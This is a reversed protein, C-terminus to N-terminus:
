TPRSLSLMVSTNIMWLYFYSGLLRHSPSRRQRAVVGAETYPSTFTIAAYAQQCCSRLATACVRWCAAPITTHYTTPYPLCRARLRAAPYLEACLCYLLRARACALVADVVGWCGTLRLLWARAHPLPACLCIDAAQHSSVSLHAIRMLPGDCVDRWFSQRTVPARQCTFVMLLTATRASVVHRYYTHPRFRPKRWRLAADLGMCAFGLQLRVAMRMDGCCAQAFIDCFARCIRQCVGGVGCGCRPLIHAAHAHLKASYTHARTRARM